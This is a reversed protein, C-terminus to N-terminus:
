EVNRISPLTGCSGLLAPIVCLEHTPRVKSGTLGSLVAAFGSTIEPPVGYAAAPHGQAAYHFLEAPLKPLPTGSHATLKIISQTIFGVVKQYSPTWVTELNPLEPCDATM